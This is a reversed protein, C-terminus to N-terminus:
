RKGIMCYGVPKITGFVGPCVEKLIKPNGVYIVGGESSIKSAQDKLDKTWEPRSSIHYSLNGAYWEDGIVLKIENIFNNDWKNQVM